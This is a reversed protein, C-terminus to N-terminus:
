IRVRSAVRSKSAEHWLRATDDDTPAAPKSPNEEALATVSVLTPHKTPPALHLFDMIPDQPRDMLPPTHFQALMAPLLGECVTQEVHLDPLSLSQEVPFM